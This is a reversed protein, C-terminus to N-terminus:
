FQHRNTNLSEQLEPTHFQADLLIEQLLDWTTHDTKWLDLSIKLQFELLALEVLDSYRPKIIRTTSCLGDRRTTHNQLKKILSCLPKVAVPNLMMLEQLKM